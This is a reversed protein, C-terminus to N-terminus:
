KLEKRVRVNSHLMLLPASALTPSGLRSKPAERM